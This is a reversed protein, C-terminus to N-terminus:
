RESHAGSSFFAVSSHASLVPALQEVAEPNATPLAPAAAAASAMAPRQGPMARPPRAASSSAAGAGHAAHQSTTGPRSDELLLGITSALFKNIFAPFRFKKLKLVNLRYLLGSLVGTAASLMSGTGGSFFLNAAAVYVFVKDSLRCGLFNFKRSPPIQFYFQALSAFLFGYPGYALLGGASPAGTQSSSGGVSLLKSLAFQLAASLGTSICVYGGFKASGSQRELVRFIYILICGALLDGPTRFCILKPTVTKKTQSLISAGFTGILIVKSIPANGAVRRKIYGAVFQM